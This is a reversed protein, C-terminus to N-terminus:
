KAALETEQQAVPRRTFERKVAQRKALRQRGFLMWEVFLGLAGLLALWRWLDLSSPIFRSRLPLGTATNAPPKWEFAAVDPITASLVHERGASIVRLVEPRNAFLQLNQKTAVFPVPLGRQDFIHVQDARQGPDLPVSLAAVREAAADMSRFVDPSIWRLLNAFLLPTTLDLRAESAFPDFGIVAIDGRGQSAGRAVVVPGEAMSGVVIDGDFTQFVEASPIRTDKAHLGEGLPTESHWNRIVADRLLAKVPFPSGDDPPDVWISAVNAPLARTTRDLVMVDAAVNPEHGSPAFFQVKLRSNASFLPRFVDARNTFVAVRLFRIRPLELAARNDGMRDDGPELEAVLQGPTDTVFSYEITRESSGALSIARPAFATGAFGAQLRVTVRETGYNKVTVAAQWANEGAENRQVGMGRIGVHEHLREIAITRLNPVSQAVVDSDSVMEPGTYVVEGPESGSWGQAQRAFTIAQEINLASYGATMGRLASMLQSRDSTFPTLPAALADAKVLMIRDQPGLTDLYREAAQKERELLTADGKRQASWASTDVLVVYNRGHRERSGWQLQAIALLLMLLSALQLVLSWPDRVRKRRQSERPIAAPTWFRLTSVIRKRKTRDLLYLAAILGSLGSLLTLFEAATLNLFFM